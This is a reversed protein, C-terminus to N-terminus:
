LQVIRSRGHSPVSSQKQEKPEDIRAIVVAIGQAALVDFRLDQEDEERSGVSGAGSELAHKVMNHCVRGDVGLEQGLDVTRRLHTWSTKRSVKGPGEGEFAIHWQGRSSKPLLTFDARHWLIVVHKRM